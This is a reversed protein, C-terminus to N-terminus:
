DNSACPANNKKPGFYESLMWIFLFYFFMRLPLSYRTELHIFTFVAANQLIFGFWIWPLIQRGLQSSIKNRKLYLIFFGLGCGLYILGEIADPVLSKTAYGTWFNRFNSLRHSYWAIPNNLYTLRTLKKLEKLDLPYGPENLKKCTVPDVVCATNMAYGWEPVKSTEKWLHSTSWTSWTATEVSAVISFIKSEHLNRLKWPFTTMFFVSSAIFLNYFLHKSVLNPWRWSFPLKEIKLNRAALLLLIPIFIFYLSLDFFHRIYAAMGLFLGALVFFYKKPNKIGLILFALGTFFLPLSKSESSMVGDERFNWFHAQNSAWFALAFFMRLAVSWRDSLTLFFIYAFLAWLFVSLVLHALIFREGNLVFIIAANIWAMGPGWYHSEPATMDGYKLLHQAYAIYSGQDSGILVKATEDVNSHLNLHGPQAYPEFTPAIYSAGNQKTVKTAILFIIIFFVPLLYLKNKRINM